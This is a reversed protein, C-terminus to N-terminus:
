GQKSNLSNCGLVISGLQCYHKFTLCLSLIRTVRTRRDNLMPDIMTPLCLMTQNNCDSRSIYLCKPCCKSSEIFRRVIRITNHRTTSKDKPDIMLSYQMHINGSARPTQEIVEVIGVWALKQVGSVESDARLGVALRRMFHTYVLVRHACLIRTFRSIIHVCLTYFLLIHVRLICIFRSGIHM